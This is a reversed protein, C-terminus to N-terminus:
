FSTLLRALAERDRSILSAVHPPSDKAHVQMAPKALDTKIEPKLNKQPRKAASNKQVSKSPQPTPTAHRPEPERREQKIVPASTLSPVGQTPTQRPPTPQIIPQVPPVTTSAKPQPPPPQPPAPQIIPQVPPVTTSAKPQPPPPQLPVEPTSGQTQVAPAAPQQQVPQVLSPTIQETVATPPTQVTPQPSPQSDAPPKISFMDQADLWRNRESDSIKTFDIEDLMAGLGEAFVLSEEEVTALKEEHFPNSSYSYYLRRDTTLLHLAIYAAYKETRERFFIVYSRADELMMEPTAVQHINMSFLIKLINKGRVDLDTMKSEITFM